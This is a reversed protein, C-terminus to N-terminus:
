AGRGQETGVLRDYLIQSASNPLIAGMSQILSAVTLSAISTAKGHSFVMESAPVLRHLSNEAAKIVGPAYRAAAAYAGFAGAMGAVRGTFVRGAECPLPLREEPPTQYHHLIFQTTMNATGSASLLVADTARAMAAESLPAGGRVRSIMRALMGELQKTQAPFWHRAVLVGGIAMATGAAEGKLTIALQTPWPAKQSSTEPTEM